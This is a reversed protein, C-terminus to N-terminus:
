FLVLDNMFKYCNLLTPTDVLAACAAEPMQKTPLPLPNGSQDVAYRSM